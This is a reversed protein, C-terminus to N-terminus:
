AAKRSARASWLLFLIVSLLFMASQWVVVHASNFAAPHDRGIVFLSAVRVINVAQIILASAVAGVLRLRWPAPFAVIAAVVLIVAELGNCGNKVDVAFSRSFMMTGRTTTVDNGILNLVASSVSAIAGSFPTVFARDVPRLAILVYLVAVILLFRLLFGAQARRQAPSKGAAANETQRTM